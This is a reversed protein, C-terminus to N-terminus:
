LPLQTASVQSPPTGTVTPPPAPPCGPWVERLRGQRRVAWPCSTQASCPKGASLAGQDMLAGGGGLSAPPVPHGSVQSLGMTM